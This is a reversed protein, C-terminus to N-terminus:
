KRDKPKEKPESKSPKVQLKDEPIEGKLRQLDEKKFNLDRQPFPISIGKEALRAYIDM